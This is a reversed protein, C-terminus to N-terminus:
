SIYLASGPTGDKRVIVKGTNNAKRFSTIQSDTGYRPLDAGTQILVKGVRGLAENYFNKSSNALAWNWADCEDSHTARLHKKIAGWKYGTLDCAALIDTVLSITRNQTGKPVQVAPVEPKPPPPPAVQDFHGWRTDQPASIQAVITKNPVMQPKDKIPVPTSTTAEVEVLSHSGDKKLHLIFGGQAVFEPAYQELAAQSYRWARTKGKSWAWIAKLVKGDHNSIRSGVVTGKRNEYTKIAYAWAAEVVERESLDEPVEVDTFYWNGGHPTFQLGCFLVPNPGDGLAISSPDITNNSVM